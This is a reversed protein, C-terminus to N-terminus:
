NMSLLFSFFSVVDCKRRVIYTKALAKELLTSSPFPFSAFFAFRRCYCVSPLSFAVPREKKSESRGEKARDKRCGNAPQALLSLCATTCSSPQPRHNRRFAGGRRFRKRWRARGPREQTRSLARRPAILFCSIPRARCSLLSIFTRKAVCHGRTRCRHSHFLLEAAAKDDKLEHARYLALTQVFGSM